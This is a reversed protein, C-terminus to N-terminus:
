SSSPKQFNIITSLFLQRNAEIISEDESHSNAFQRALDSRIQFDADDMDVLQHLADVFLCPAELSLDWGIKRFELDRWPTRDSTIILCGASLAELIAHGFNEGGTPLFLAHYKHMIRNVSENPVEGYYNVRINKPLQEIIDKCRKWYVHDSVPGYIDFAVSHHLSALCRLAFDLNKIPSIRSLFVLYAMGSVKRREGTGADTTVVALNPAVRVSAKPFIELIAERESISSAQWLVSHYLGLLKSFSIYVRKKVSKLALAGPNTEGRPALIVPVAPLRGLRRLLLYYVSIHAFLSNLYVLDYETDMILQRIGRLNWQEPPAYYVTAKGYTQWSRSAISQYPETDDVDRDKALVIFHFEDGLRQIMSSVTRIPGGSRFGPLYHTILILVKPKQSSKKSTGLETM